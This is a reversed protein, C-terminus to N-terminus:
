GPWSQVTEHLTPVTPQSRAGSSATERRARRNSLTLALALMFTMQTVASSATAESVAHWLPLLLEWGFVLGM